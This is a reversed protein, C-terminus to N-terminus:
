QAVAAACNSHKQRTLPMSATHQVTQVVHSSCALWSDQPTFPDTWALRRGIDVSASTVTQMSQFRTAETSKGLDFMKARAHEVRQEFRM